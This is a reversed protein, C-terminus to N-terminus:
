GRLAIAQELVCLVTDDANRADDDIEPMTAVFQGEEGAVSSLVIPDWSIGFASCSWAPADESAEQDESASLCVCVSIAIGAMRADKETDWVYSFPGRPKLIRLGRSVAQCMCQPLCTAPFEFHFDLSPEGPELRQGQSDVGWFNVRTSTDRGLLVLLSPGHRVSLRACLRGLFHEEWSRSDDGSANAADASVHLDRAVLRPRAVPFASTPLECAEFIACLQSKAGMGPTCQVMEALVLEGDLEVELLLMFESIAKTPVFVAPTPFDNVSATSQECVAILKQRLQEISQSQDHASRLLSRSDAEAELQRGWRQQAHKKWLGDYQAAVNFATCARASCCLSRMDLFALCHRVLDQPLLVLSM